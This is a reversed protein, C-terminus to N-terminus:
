HCVSKNKTSVLPGEGRVFCGTFLSGFHLRGRLRETGDRLAGALSVVWLSTSKREEMTIHSCSAGLPMKAPDKIHGWKNWNYAEYIKLVIRAFPITQTVFIAHHQNRIGKFSVCAFLKGLHFCSKTFISLWVKLWKHLPNGTANLCWNSLTIHNTRKLKDTVKGGRM